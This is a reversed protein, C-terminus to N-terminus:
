YLVIQTWQDSFNLVGANLNAFTTLLDAPAVMYSDMLKIRGM